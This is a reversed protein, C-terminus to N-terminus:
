TRPDRHDARALDGRRLHRRPRTGPGPAPLRTPRRAPRRHYREPMGGAVPGPRFLSIDAIVDQVDRPQLRALPGAPGAVRAPVPRADRAGPDTQVRLRRGTAVQRPDDLDLRDGTAREIETVAHAMASQMRVGLVDLKLQGLDEVEEKAAMAMPYDGQPTPQVPLRDLLTADVIIVGCPHMAMGRVLADLGEALEWLPGYENRRPPSSGCSPCSPSPAAHHRLGSTRSARPSGTSRRRPSGWPSAPTACPAPPGPLDRADRHGRGARTGFRDFIADYCELRRASEVDIDIDPLSARRVSLFREFLLRHDLPNATAIGLAHNVM